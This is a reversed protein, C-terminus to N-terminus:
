KLYSYQQDKEPKVDHSPYRRLVGGAAGRQVPVVQLQCSSDQGRLADDADNFGEAGFWSIEEVAEALTPFGSIFYRVLQHKVANHSINPM